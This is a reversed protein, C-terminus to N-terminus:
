NCTYINQASFRSMNFALAQPPLHVLYLSVDMALLLGRYFATSRSLSSLLLIAKGSSEYMGQTFSPYSIHTLSYGYPM